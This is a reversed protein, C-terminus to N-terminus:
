WEKIEKMLDEHSIINGNNFDKFGKQAEMRLYLAYIIEEMTANEPLDKITEIAIEKQMM